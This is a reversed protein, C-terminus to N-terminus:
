RSRAVSAATLHPLEIVGGADDIVASVADIIRERDAPDLLIYDSHTRLLAAYQATTYSTTWTYTLPALAEFGTVGDLEDHWGPQPSITAPHM